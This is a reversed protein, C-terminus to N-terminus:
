VAVTNGKSVKEWRGNILREQSVGCGGEARTCRCVWTRTKGDDIKLDCCQGQALTPLAELERRTVDEDKRM